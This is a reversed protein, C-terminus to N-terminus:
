WEWTRWGPPAGFTCAGRPIGTLAPGRPARPNDLKHPRSTPPHPSPPAVGWGEWEDGAEEALAEEGGVEMGNYEHIGPGSLASM